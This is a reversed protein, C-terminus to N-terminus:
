SRVMSLAIAQLSSLKACSAFHHLDAINVYRHAHLLDWVLYCETVTGQQVVTQIEHVYSMVAM